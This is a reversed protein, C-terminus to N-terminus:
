KCPSEFVALSQDRKSQTSYKNKETGTLGSERFVFGISCIVRKWLEQKSKDKETQLALIGGPVLYQLVNTFVPITVKQHYEEYSKCGSYHSRNGGYEEFNYYPPSTYCLDFKNILDPCFVTSDQCRIEVKVGPSNTCEDAVISLYEEFARENTDFGLYRIGNRKAYLPSVGHGSFPDFWGLKARAVVKENIKWNGAIAFINARFEKPYFLNKPKTIANDCESWSGGLFGTSGAASARSVASAASARSVASADSARSAHSARSARSAHSANSAASVDSLTASTGFGYLRENVGPAKGAKVLEAEYRKYPDTRVHGVADLVWTRESLSRINLKSVWDLVTLQEEKQSFIEAKVGNVGEEFFDTIGLDECGGASIANVIASSGLTRCKGDFDIYGNQFVYKAAYSARSTCDVWTMTGDEKTFYQSPNARSPTSWASLQRLVKVSGSIYGRLEDRFKREDRISIIRYRYFEKLQVAIRKQTETFPAYIRKNKKYGLLVGSTNWWNMNIIDRVLYGLSEEDIM